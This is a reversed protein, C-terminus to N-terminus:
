GGTLGATIGALALYRATKALGVLVTFQWLPTRMAGALVTSVEGVPLWALLLTWVGWRHWLGRARAFGAESVRLWRHAGASELRWGLWYNVFTGLTNAVSAVTILLWVPAAGTLQLGIFVPESSFPM